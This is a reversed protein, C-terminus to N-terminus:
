EKEKEKQALLAKAVALCVAEGISDALCNAIQM